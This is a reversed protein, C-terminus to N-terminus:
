GETRTRNEFVERWSSDYAILRHLLQWTHTERRDVSSFFDLDEPRSLYLEREPLGEPGHALLWVREDFTERKLGEIVMITEGTRLPRLALYAAPWYPGAPWSRQGVEIDSSRKEFTGKAMWFTVEQVIAGYHQHLSAYGKASVQYVQRNEAVGEYAWPQGDVEILRMKNHM